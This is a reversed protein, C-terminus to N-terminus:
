LVLMSCPRLVELTSGMPSWSRLLLVACCRVKAKWNRGANETYYIAGTTTTMEAQSPGLAVVGDFQEDRLALGFEFAGVAFGLLGGFRELGLPLEVEAGGGGLVLGFEGLEFTGGGCGAGLDISANGLVAIGGVRGVGGGDGLGFLGGAVGEGGGLLGGLFQGGFEVAM